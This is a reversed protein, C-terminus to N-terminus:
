HLSVLSNFKGLQAVRRYIMTARVLFQNDRAIPCGLQRVRDYFISVHEGMTHSAAICNCRYPNAELDCTEAHGNCDCRASITVEDIGYYQHRSNTM